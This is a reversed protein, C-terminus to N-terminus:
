GEAVGLGGEAGGGVTLGGEAGAGRGGAALTGLGGGGAAPWGAALLLVSRDLQYRGRPIAPPPTRSMMMASSAMTMTKHRRVDVRKEVIWSSSPRSVDVAVAVDAVAGYRVRPVRVSVVRGM